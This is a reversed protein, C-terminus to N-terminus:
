DIAAIDPGFVFRRNRNIAFVIPSDTRIRRGASSRGRLVHLPGDDGNAALNLLFLILVVDDLGQGVPEEALQGGMARKRQAFGHSVVRMDRQRSKQVFEAEVSELMTRRAGAQFSRHPMDEEGDLRRVQFVARGGLGDGFPVLGPLGIQGLVLGFQPVPEVGDILCAPRRKQRMAHRETDVGEILSGIAVAAGADRDM